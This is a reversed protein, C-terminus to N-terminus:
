SQPPEIPMPELVVDKQTGGDTRRDVKRMCNIGFAALPKELRALDTSLRAADKPWDRPGADDRYSQLKQYLDEMKGAFGKPHKKLYSKMFALVARGIATAEASAEMSAGRNVAYANVFEWKHFGMGRCGAEAFREFDMMRAPYDVRIGPGDRLGAVLGDLLAGFVGPWIKAFEDDLEAESRRLKPDLKPLELKITRSALDAREILNDSIGNFIVPRQVTVIHEEDNTYHARTGSSIGTAMMCLLDSLEATMWSLNDLAIVWGNRGAIILDDIKRSARRIQAEQPDITQRIKKNATSKGDESSGHINIIPYAGTPNLAQLMWGAVLVLDKPRVNIVKGLSLVSGGRKPKPLPLMTGTRLFAVDPDPEVEWGEATVRVAKWDAGGLDIWIVERDGGVRIAPKREDGNSTAIGELQGISDRIAGTGPVQPAWEGNIM